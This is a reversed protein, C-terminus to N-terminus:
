FSPTVVKWSTQGAGLSFSVVVVAGDAWTTSKPGTQTGPEMMAQKPPNTGTIPPCIM